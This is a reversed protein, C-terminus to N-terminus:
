LHQLYLYLQDSWGHILLTKTLIIERSPCRNHLFVPRVKGKDSRVMPKSDEQEM